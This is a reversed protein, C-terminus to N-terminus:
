VNRIKRTLEVTKIKVDVFVSARLLGLSFHGLCDSKGISLLGNEM